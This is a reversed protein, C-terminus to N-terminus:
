RKSNAHFTVDKRRRPVKDLWSPSTHVGFTHGCCSLRRTDRRVDFSRKKRQLAVRLPRQSVPPAGTGEDISSILIWVLEGTWLYQHFLLFIDISVHPM